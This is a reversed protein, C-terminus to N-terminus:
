LLCREIADPSPRTDCGDSPAVTFRRESADATSSFALPHGDAALWQEAGLASAPLGNTPLGARTVPTESTVATAPAATEAAGCATVLMTLGALGAAITHTSRKMTHEQRSSTGAACWRASPRVTLAMVTPGAM